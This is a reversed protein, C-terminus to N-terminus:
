LSELKYVYRATKLGRRRWGPNEARSVRGRTEMIALDRQITSHELATKEGLARVTMPGENDLFNAIVQRRNEPKM